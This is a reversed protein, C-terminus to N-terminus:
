CGKVTSKKEGQYGEEWSTVWGEGVESPCINSFQKKIM